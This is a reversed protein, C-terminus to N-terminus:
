TTPKREREMGREKPMPQLNGKEKGKRKGRRRGGDRLNLNTTDTGKGTRIGKRIGEM